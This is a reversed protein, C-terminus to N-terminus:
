ASKLPRLAAEGLHVQRALRPGRAINLTADLDALIETLVGDLSEDHDIDVTFFAEGEKTEFIMQYKPM